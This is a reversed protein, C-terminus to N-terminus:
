TRFFLLRYRRPLAGRAGTGTSSYPARGGCDPARRPCGAAVQLWVIAEVSSNRPPLRVAATRAKWLHFDHFPWRSLLGSRGRVSGQHRAISLGDLPSLTRLGAARRGPHAAPEVLLLAKSRRRR